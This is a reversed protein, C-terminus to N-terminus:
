RQVRGSGGNKLLNEVDEVTTRNYDGEITHKLCSAAAAFEIADQNEKGAILSYILGATFSDGGGVRDVIQIDYKRSYYSKDKEADYLMASWGNRSASYSERLTIAAKKCGYEDCIRKAVQTYGEKNLQGTEVNNNEAKIGLVKDADEENGICVDAYPVLKTMVAKAKDTNWLNKRYNLDCSVTIGKERAKKCAELLIDAMEDSLAPNIGTWHFWDIDEFILDWNFEEKKAMAVASCARDYIVKSPRQSAGKELYYLGMRGNGYIIRSTDVGFYRMSNAAAKGIDNDPLKTLFASDVGFISLSVAVNAEGGCFTCDLSDKQFLKTYGPSALRLLIEGFSLVKM